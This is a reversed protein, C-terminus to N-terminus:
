PRGAHGAETQVGWRRIEFLMVVIVPLYEVAVVLASQEWVGHLQYRLITYSTLSATACFLIGSWRRTVPVLVALWTIYWPHVVPSFVLLLLVSYYLTDPLDLNRRYLLMLSGCLLLACTVRTLQNNSVFFDLAEFVVGNFTWHRTFVFLSEFPNSSFVYPLFQATLVALPIGIVSVKNWIGRERLVLIPLILLGVPKISISLAFLFLSLVKRGDLHLLLGFVLLPLGVADIHADLAFQFLPLPCLAYLLLFKSPQRLRNLVLFLGILTCVEAILLSLKYAWIKEGSLQHCVAFIWQALPFYVTKLEPHNVSAPLLPSHLSDLQSANPAYRYPNIGSLQVKGDWMYRYVDDSGVPDLTLFSMRVLFVAALALFVFRHSPQSHFVERALWLFTLSTFGFVIAYTVVQAFPLIHVFLAGAVILGASGALRLSASM